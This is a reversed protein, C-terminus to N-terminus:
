LSKLYLHYPNLNNCKVITFNNVKIDQSLLTLHNKLDEEDFNYYMTRGRTYLMRNFIVTLYEM